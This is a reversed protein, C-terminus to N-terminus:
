ARVRQRGGWFGGGRHPNHPSLFPIPPKQPHRIWKKLHKAGCDLRPPHEPFQAGVLPEAGLGLVGCGSQPPYQRGVDEHAAIVKAMDTAVTAVEVAQGSALLALGSARRSPRCRDQQRRLRPMGHRRAPWFTVFAPPLGGGGGARETTPGEAGEAGERTQAPPTGGAAKCVTGLDREVTNVRSALRDRERTVDALRTEAARRDEASVARVAWAGCQQLLQQAEVWEGM